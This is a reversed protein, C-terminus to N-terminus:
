SYPDPRKGIKWGQELLEQVKPFNQRAHDEAKTHAKQLIPAGIKVTVAFCVIFLVVGVLIGGLDLDGNGWVMSSLACGGLALLVTVGAGLISIMKAKRHAEKCTACRPVQVTANRYSVKTTKRSHQRSVEDYMEIKSESGEEASRTECYWCIGPPVTAQGEAGDNVTSKAASEVSDSM